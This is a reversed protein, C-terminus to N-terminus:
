PAPSALAARVARLAHPRLLAPAIEDSRIHDRADQDVIRLAKEVREARACAADRAARLKDNELEWGADSALQELAHKRVLELAGTAIEQLEDREKIAEDRAAEAAALDRGQSYDLPVLGTGDVWVATGDNSVPAMTQEYHALKAEAASLRSLLSPADTEGVAHDDKPDLGNRDQGQRAEGAQAFGYLMGRDILSSRLDEAAKKVPPEDAPPFVRSLEAHAAEINRTMEAVIQEHSPAPLAEITKLWWEAEARRGQCYGSHHAVDDGLPTYNGDVDYADEFCKECRVRESWYAFQVRAKALMPGRSPDVATPEHGTPAHGDPSLGTRQASAGIGRGGVEGVAVPDPTNAIM